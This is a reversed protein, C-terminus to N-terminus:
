VEDFETPHKVMGRVGNLAGPTLELAMFAEEPVPIPLELGLPGAPLFGFRPYYSPHGVLVVVNHGMRRCDELGRRVLGAGIGLRQYEPLVAVPALGLVPYVEGQQNEVTLRTFCSIGPWKETKKLM